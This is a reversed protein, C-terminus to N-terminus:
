SLIPLKELVGTVKFNYKNNITITKGIPNENGFYKNAFEEALVISYPKNLVKDAKGLALPFSFIQFFTSDVGVGNSEVYKKDIKGSADFSTFLLESALKLRSKMIVEPYNNQIEEGWIGACTYSKVNENNLKYELGLKYLNDANTHFSDFSYQYRMSVLMVMSIALGTSLGLVNIISFTRQRWFRRLAIKLYNKFM